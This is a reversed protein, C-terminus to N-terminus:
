VPNVTRGQRSKVQQTAYIIHEKFFMAILVTNFVLDLGPIEPNEIKVGEPLFPSFDIGNAVYTMIDVNFLIKSSSYYHKKGKKQFPL